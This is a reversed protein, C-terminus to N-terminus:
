IPQTSAGDPKRQMKWLASHQVSPPTVSYLAVQLCLSCTLSAPSGESLLHFLQCLTMSLGCQSSSVKGLVPMGILDEALVESPCGSHPKGM